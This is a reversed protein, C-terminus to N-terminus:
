RFFRRYGRYSSIFAVAAFICTLWLPLPTEILAATLSLIILTSVLASHQFKSTSRYRTSIFGGWYCIVSVLLLRLIIAIPTLCCSPAGFKFCGSSCDNELAVKVAADAGALTLSILAADRIAAFFTRLLTGVVAQGYLDNVEAKVRPVGLKATLSPNTQNNDDNKM